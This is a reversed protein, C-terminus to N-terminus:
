ISSGKFRIESAPCKVRPPVTQDFWRKSSRSGDIGVHVHKTETWEMLGQYGFERGVGSQKYGGFPYKPNLLHYDNVWVTGARIRDALAMARGPPGWVGGALGFETDNAITVAEDESDYSLVSLVPGFVEERAVRMDPTVSTLITPGVFFGRGLDGATLREGGVKVVAGQDQAIRVYGLVRDLQTQNILPGMTVSPNTANGVTIDQSREVLRDVFEDHLSRPLLLRSGATCTQGAHFFMAFLVGDVALDLDAGELVIQASKGGLELTVNKVTEASLAMVRRGIPVSGTFSIKDVDPSTVLAEGVEAGPGPLVNVVGQPIGADHIIRALRVCSAAAAAAPKLVITNGAALAASIKWCAMLFPFNWPIIAAGVGVPERRLYNYSPGPTLTQPLATSEALQGAMEAMTRFWFAGSGIDSRSKPVTAGADRSELDALEESHEKIGSAVASLFSARKTPTLESWRGDDFAVRAARVAAVADEKGAAAIVGVVDGNSPNVTEFTAGSAAERFEGDIYLQFDSTM